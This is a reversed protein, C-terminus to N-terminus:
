YGDLSRADEEIYMEVQNQYEDASTHGLNPSINGRTYATSNRVLVSNM